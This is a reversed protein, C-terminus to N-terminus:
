LTHPRGAGGGRCKGSAAPGSAPHGDQTNTQQASGGKILKLPEKFPGTVTTPLHPYSTTKRCLSHSRHWPHHKIPALPTPSESEGKQELSFHGKWTVRSVSLAQTVREAPEMFAQTRGDQELPHPICFADFCPQAHHPWKLDPLGKARSHGLGQHALSSRPCGRGPSVGPAQPRSYGRWRPEERCHPHGRVHERQKGRDREKGWCPLCDSWRGWEGWM